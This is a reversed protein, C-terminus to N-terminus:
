CLDFLIRTPRGRCTRPLNTATACLIEYFNWSMILFSPIGLRRLAATGHCNMPLKGVIENLACFMCLEFNKSNRAPPARCNRPVKTATQSLFEFINLSMLLNKFEQGDARPLETAFNTATEYCNRVSNGLISKQGAARPLEM